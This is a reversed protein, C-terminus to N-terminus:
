NRKKQKGKKGSMKLSLRENRVETQKGKGAQIKPKGKGIQKKLKTEVKKKKKEIMEVSNSKRKNAKVVTEPESESSDSEGDDTSSQSQLQETKKKKKAKGQAEVTETTNEDNDKESQSKRKLGEAKNKKKSSKETKKVANEKKPTAKEVFVAMCTIRFGTNKEALLKTTLAEKSETITYLKLDGDSSAVCLVPDESVGEVGRKICLGKIRTTETKCSHLPKNSPIHHFYVNGGEGAFCVTEDNYYELCNIRAEAQINLSIEATEVDYVDIKNNVVIAYNDGKPSWCVIDAAQKINSIFASRGTILNWTHLARDRGVTLALKGSPHVSVCNIAAQHGKFTRLCEWTYSKWLCLAADESTSFMFGRHFQLSTITGNHHVLSGMEKMKRINLLRISEDTSGSALIGKDSVAMCKVCGSHSNDTFSAEVQFDDAIKLLRFGLIVNDYTGVVIEM